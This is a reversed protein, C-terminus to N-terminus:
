SPVEQNVARGDASAALQQEQEQLSDLVERFCATLAPQQAAPVDDASLRTSFVEMPSLEDLTVPEEEEMLLSTQRVKGRRVKLVEVPLDKVREAIEQQLDSRYGEDLIEIDLWADLPAEPLLGELRQELLDLTTSISLLARQCPIDLLRIAPTASESFDLLVVEKKLGENFSLPLPSGSYRWCENRSVIQPRHLHGLALYDFPPFLQAPFADLTGIYIERESESTKSHLTTLHGTGIIPLGSDARATEAEKYLDTYLTAITDKLQSAKADSSDGAQSQMMERPRLYPLACLWGATAGDRNHLPLLHDSLHQQRGAIVRTNLCALLQRSEDLTSVADHNGGLVITQVGLGHTRTLFSYYQERAYSPPTTTDFIDGAIVLVDVKETDLQELLWNLFAQHEAQRSKGMFHQGLHWDSTHIVRM